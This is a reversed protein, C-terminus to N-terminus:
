LEADQLVSHETPPTPSDQAGRRVVLGLGLALIAAFVFGVVALDRSRATDRCLPQANSTAITQASSPNGRLPGASAPAPESTLQELPSSCESVLSISGGSGSLSDSVDSQQITVTFSSLFVAGAILIFVAATVFLTVRRWM